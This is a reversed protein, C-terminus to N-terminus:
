TRANLKRYDICLRYTGNAKKALVPPSCWPSKCPEIVDQELYRDVLKQMEKLMAPSTRRPNQRIPTTDSLEIYHHTLNTVLLRKGPTKIYRKLLRHIRKKQTNSLEKLGACDGSVDEANLTSPNFDLWDSSDPLQWLSKDFDIKIGLSTLFDMGLICGYGLSHVLRVLLSKWKGGLSLQTNVEGLVPEILNDALLVSASVPVLSKDVIPEFVAGLYTRTSGSDILATVKHGKITVNIFFRSDSSSDVASISDIVSAYDGSSKPFDM